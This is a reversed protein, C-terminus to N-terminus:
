GGARGKGGTRAFCGAPVEAKQDNENESMHLGILLLENEMM